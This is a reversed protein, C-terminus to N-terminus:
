EEARMTATIRVLFAPQNGWEMQRTSEERIDTLYRQVEAKNRWTKLQQSPDFPKGNPAVPIAIDMRLSPSSAPIDLTLLNVHPPLSTTIVYLLQATPYRRQLLRGATDLTAATQALQQRQFQIFRLADPHDPYQQAFRLQEAAVQRQHNQTQLVSQCAYYISGALVLGATLLALLLLWIITARQPLPVPRERILNIRFVTM